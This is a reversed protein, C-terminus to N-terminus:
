MTKSMKFLEKIKITNGNHLILTEFVKATFRFLMMIFFVQLLIAAIILIPTAKGILIAGPLIFPSSLPFLFAFTVFSNDGSAMLIGAAAIGIYAGAINAITFLQLGEKLEEMKSVTAGALSALTSYFVMGLVILLLCVILNLPNLNEFINSPLLSSMVNTNNESLYTASVLNSISIIIILTIFQLTVATLMAITKGVMLALPRVSTLLYEIVRTSKETVISSAIQSSAMINVMLLIFLLGYMFWYETGSIATNIEEVIVGEADAESTKVTVESQLLTAKEESIGLAKIKLQNFQLSLEEGLLAVSEESVPGKSAKALALKYMGDKEEITLLVSTRENDQIKKSVADIDSTILEAKVATFMPNKTDKLLDSVDFDTKNEIYVKTIQSGDANDANGSTLITYVPISFVSLIILILFSILFAKNKITQIFTFSLVDKWGTLNNKNM